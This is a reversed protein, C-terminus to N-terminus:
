NIDKKTYKLYTIIISIITVAAAISVLAIDLQGNSVIDAGECYGFPTIYKLFEADDSINAVINLFYMMVAIGLGAGVSGKRMFASICFCIGALELQLIYYALHLLSIEKWPIKEGIAAISGVALLYIILNMATIQIIVAVLKQTIISARSIPHTLLFEATRDKEEKSIIAVACLSAYFAGGLGLINGCEVAYFGILTAFNLRDMGFAETFSGMSAFMDSVGDMQGKMEPFMFVCIALLFGISSTWIIFSAKGQRLEHKILTM